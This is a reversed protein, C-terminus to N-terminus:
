LKHAEVPGQSYFLFYGTQTKFGNKQWGPPVKFIGLQDSSIGVFSTNETDTTIRSWRERTVPQLQMKPESWEPTRVKDRMIYRDGDREIKVLEKLVGNREVAYVGVLETEPGGRAGCASLLSVCAVALLSNLLKKM